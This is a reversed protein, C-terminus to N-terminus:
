RAEPQDKNEPVEDDEVPVQAELPPMIDRFVIEEPVLFNVQREKRTNVYLRRLKNAGLDRCLLITNYGEKTRSIAIFASETEKGNTFRFFEGPQVQGIGVSVIPDKITIKM